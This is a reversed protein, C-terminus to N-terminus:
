KILQERTLNNIQGRADVAAFLALLCVAGFALMSKKM